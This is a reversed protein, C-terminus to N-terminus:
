WPMATRVDLRDPHTVELQWRIAPFKERISPGAQGRGISGSFSVGGPPRRSLAILPLPWQSPTFDIADPRSYHVFPRPSEHRRLAAQRVVERSRVLDRHDGKGLIMARTLPLMVSVDVASRHLELARVRPGVM